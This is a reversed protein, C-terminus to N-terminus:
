GLWSFGCLPECIANSIAMDTPQSSEPQVATTPIMLTLSADKILGLALRM